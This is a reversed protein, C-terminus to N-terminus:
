NTDDTNLERQLSLRYEYYWRTSYGCDELRGKRRITELWVCQTGVRRPLLCFFPHWQTRQAYLEETREACRQSFPKGCNFIM